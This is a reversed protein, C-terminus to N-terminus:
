IPAMTKATSRQACPMAKRRKRETRGGPCLGIILVISILLPLQKRIM